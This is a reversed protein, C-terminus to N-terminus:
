LKVRSYIKVFICTNLYEGVGIQLDVGLKTATESGRRARTRERYACALRRESLRAERQESSERPRRNRDRERRKRLAAERASSDMASSDMASSDMASSDMASSNLASSDMASTSSDMASLVIGHRMAHTTCPMRQVDIGVAETSCSCSFYRPIESFRSRQLSIAHFCALFGIHMILVHTYVHIAFVYMAHTTCPMRQVAIGVAETSCSCSFYRPIESFRRRQLSIAHFCALFGIHMILVHTYVHIAFYRTCVHCANYM